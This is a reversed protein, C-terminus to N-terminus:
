ATRGYYLVVTHKAEAFFLWREVLLGALVLVAGALAAVAAPLAPLVLSLAALLVPLVFAAALAIRRLRAAHKRALRFGMEKLLYNEETHPADLLRVKGLHGLGTASEATSAPAETDIRRWYLLKVALAALGLVIGAVASPVAPGGWLLALAHLCICGSFLGFVLYGPLVLRNHWQRIPKLSAYIMATCGITLLAMAAALAGFLAAIGQPRGTWMWLLGFTLAPPYSALSLVGERSLWSSRWQSFARWAREPHGLHATSSLLGASVLALSIGGSFAGFWPGAPLLGLPALIGLLALMGYGAGSATTFFIVSAAPEM